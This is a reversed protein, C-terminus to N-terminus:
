RHHDVLAERALRLDDRRASSEAGPRAGFGVVDSVQVKRARRWATALPSLTSSDKPGVTASRRSM